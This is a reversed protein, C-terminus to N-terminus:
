LNEKDVTIMEKIKEFTKQGIGKVKTIDEISSFEGQINRYEIIRNAIDSGIGPLKDLEEISATNLNIKLKESLCKSGEVTISGVDIARHKKLSSSDRKREKLTVTISAFKEVNGVTILGRIKEFNKKGVGKVKTIEEVSKFKGHMRRYEVIRNSTVSGIRPLTMLDELSATNINVKDPITEESFVEFASHVVEIKSLANEGQIHTVILIGSAILASAILFLVVRQESRNFIEM